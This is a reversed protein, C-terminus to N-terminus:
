LYQSVEDFHDQSLYTYNNEWGDTDGVTSSEYVVVDLDFDSNASCTRLQHAAHEQGEVAATFTCVGLESDVVYNYNYTKDVSTVSGTGEVFETKMVNFAVVGQLAGESEPTFDIRYQLYSGRNNVLYYSGTFTAALSPREIVEITVSATVESNVTSTAVFTYTGTAEPTYTYYKHTGDYDTWDNKEVGTLTECSITYGQEAKSPNVKAALNISDGLIIKTPVSGEEWWDWSENYTVTLFEISSPEPQPVVLTFSFSAGQSSTVSLEYTGPESATFSFTGSYASFSGGFSPYKSNSVTFTEFAYTEIEPVPNILAFENNLGYSGLTGTVTSGPEIPTGDMAIGFSTLKWQSLSYYPFNLETLEGIEQTYNVLSYGCADLDPVTFTGNEDDVVVTDSDPSYVTSRLSLLAGTDPDFGARANVYYYNIWSGSGTKYGYSLQFVNDNVMELTYDHNPDTQGFSVIQKVASIGGCINIYDPNPIGQNFSYGDFAEETLSTRGYEGTKTDVAYGEVGDEIEYLYEITSSYESSESYKLTRKGEHEGYKISVSTSNPGYGYDTTTQVAVTVVSSEKEEAASILDAVKEEDTRTDVPTTPETSTSPETSPPESSTTPETSSSNCGTALLLAVSLVTLKTLKKM